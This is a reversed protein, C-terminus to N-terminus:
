LIDLFTWFVYWFTLFFMLFMRFSGLVDLFMGLCRLGM